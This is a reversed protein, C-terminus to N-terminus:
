AEEIFNMQRVFDEVACVKWVRSPQQIEDCIFFIHFVYKYVYVAELRFQTM